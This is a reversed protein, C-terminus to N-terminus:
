QLAQRRILEFRDIEAFIRAISDVMAFTIDYALPGWETTTQGARVTNRQTMEGLDRGDATKLRWTIALKQSDAKTDKIDVEGFIQVDASTAPIAVPLGAERLVSEFARRLSENGDGPAGSVKVVGLSLPKKKASDRQKQKQLVGAVLRASAVAIVKADNATSTSDQLVVNGEFDTLSWDIAVKKNTTGNKIKGQLLYALKLANKTTAPINARRLETVIFDAVSNPPPSLDNELPEVVVALSDQIEHLPNISQQKEEPKFPRPVPGCSALTLALATLLFFKFYSM